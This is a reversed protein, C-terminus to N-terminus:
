KRDNLKIPAIPYLRGIRILNKINTVLRPAFILFPQFAIESQVGSGMQQFTNSHEKLTSVSKASVNALLHTFYGHAM